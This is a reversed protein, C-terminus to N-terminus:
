KVRMGSRGRHRQRTRIKPQYGEGDPRPTVPPKANTVGRKIVDAAYVLPVYKDGGAQRAVMIRRLEPDGMLIDRTMKDLEAQYKASAANWRMAEQQANVLKVNAKTQEMQEGALAAAAGKQMAGAFDTRASHTQAMPASGGGGIGGGFALLPNYGARRIDEVRWRFSNKLIKKQRKWAKDAQKMAHFNEFLSQMAGIGAGALGSIM